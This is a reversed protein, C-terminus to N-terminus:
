IDKYQQIYDYIVKSLHAEVEAAHSPNSTESLFVVIYDGKKSFVIGADHKVYDLEGTKHAVEVKEPLYKPIRDNIQQKKLLSLMDKSITPNVLQGFYLKRYFSAIDYASTIPPQGIHSDEFGNSKLFQQVNQLGVEKSLLLAAYNHSITIMQSVAFQTTMTISGEKLEASESAIGFDANLAAVDSSLVDDSGLSKNAVSQYTQEMIWLKYLSASQFKKHENYYFFHGTKLDYVAVAYIGKEGVLGELVVKSFEPRTFSTIVYTAAKLPDALPNLIKYGVSQENFHSVTLAAIRSILFLCIFLPIFSLLRKIM